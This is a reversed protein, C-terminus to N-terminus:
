EYLEASDYRGPVEVGIEEQCQAQLTVSLWQDKVRASYATSEVSGQEGILEQLRKSLQEELLTQAAGLDLEALKTQYARVRTRTLQVPLESISYVTTIKDYFPWSISSNRYFDMPWGFINLALQTKEEGTYDKIQATLPIKATLTRWTRAWVRGRAQTHYYRVPQDSYVPPEMRVTGSILIDGKLVTDGEKVLSQGNHAEMQVVMGDVKAEIDYCGEKEMIEPQKIVERVLVTARTGHLNITMWSLDELVLLADQAIQKRELAPGYVGPHLGLRKLEGLIYASSVTENGEVEVTLVVQSLVSVCLLSLALGILFTYRSQFRKLFFPIGHEQDLTITCGIKNALERIQKISGRHLSLTVTHEDVWTLGWFQVRHQACLNILREPFVGQVTVAVTGRLLKILSRM